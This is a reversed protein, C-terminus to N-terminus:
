CGSALSDLLGDYSEAWTTAIFRAVDFAASFGRM